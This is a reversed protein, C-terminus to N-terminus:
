RINRFSEHNVDIVTYCETMNIRDLFLKKLVWVESWGDWSFANWNGELINMGWFKGHPTGRIRGVVREDDIQNPGYSFSDKVNRRRSRTRRCSTSWEKNGSVRKQQKKERVRGPDLFELAIKITTSSSIQLRIYFLTQRRRAGWQRSKHRPSLRVRLSSYIILLVSSPM